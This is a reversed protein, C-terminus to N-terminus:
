ITFKSSFGEGELYNFVIAEYMDAQEKTRTEAVGNYYCKNRDKDDGNHKVPLLNTYTNEIHEFDKAWEPQGDIFSIHVDFGTQNRLEQWDVSSCLTHCIIFWFLILKTM